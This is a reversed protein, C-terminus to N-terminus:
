VPDLDDFQAPRHRRGVTRLQEGVVNQIYLFTSQTEIPVRTHDGQWHDLWEEYTLFDPKELFAV